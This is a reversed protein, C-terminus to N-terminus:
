AVEVNITVLRASLMISFAKTAECAMFQSDAPFKITASYNGAISYIKTTAWSKDALTSVSISEKSGDPKTVELTGEQIGAQDSIAGSFKVNAVPEGGEFEPNFVSHAFSAVLNKESTSVESCWWCWHIWGVNNTDCWALRSTVYSLPGYLGGISGCETIVFPIGPWNTALRQLTDPSGYEAGYDSHAAIINVGSPRTVFAGKVDGVAHNFEGGNMAGTSNGPPSLLFVGEIICYLNQKVAHIAAITKEYLKYGEFLVNLINERGWDTTWDPSGNGCESIFNFGIVKDNTKYRNALFAHLDIFRQLCGNNDYFFQGAAIWEPFGMCGAYSPDQEQYGEYNDPWQFVWKCFRLIIYLGAATARQVATDLYSLGSTHYTGKTRELKNWGFNIAICIVGRQKIDNFYSQDPCWGDRNTDSNICVAVGTLINGM